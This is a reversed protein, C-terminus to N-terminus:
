DFLLTLNPLSALAQTPMKTEEAPVEAAESTVALAVHRVFVGGISGGGLWLMGVIGGFVIIISPADVMGMSLNQGIGIFLAVLFLLLGLIRM